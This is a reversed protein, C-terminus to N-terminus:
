IIIFDNKLFVVVRNVLMEGDFIDFVNMFVIRFYLNNNMGFVGM